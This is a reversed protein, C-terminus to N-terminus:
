IFLLTFINVVSNCESEQAKEQRTLHKLEKKISNLIEKITPAVKTIEDM